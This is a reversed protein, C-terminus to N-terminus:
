PQRLRRQQQQQRPPEILWGRAAAVATTARGAELHSLWPPRARATYGIVPTKHSSHSGHGSPQFPKRIVLIALIVETATDPHSSSGHHYNTYGYPLFEWRLIWWIRIPKPTTTALTTSRRLPKPTYWPSVPKYSYQQPGATNSRSTATSSLSTATSSLSTVTSSRSTATNSLSTTTSSSSRNTRIQLQCLSPKGTSGGSSIRRYFIREDADYLAVLPLTAAMRSATGTIVETHEPKSLHMDAPLAM